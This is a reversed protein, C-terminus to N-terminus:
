EDRMWVENGDKDKVTYAPRGVQAAAGVIIDSGDAWDVDGERAEEEAKEVAEEPTDAEVEIEAIEEVYQHMFVTYKTM